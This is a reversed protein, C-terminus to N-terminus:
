THPTTFMHRTVQAMGWVSDDSLLPGAACRLCNSMLELLEM